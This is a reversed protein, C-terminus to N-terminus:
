RLASGRDVSARRAAEASVEELWRALFADLDFFWSSLVAAVASETEIQEEVALRTAAGEAALTAVFRGRFGAGVFTLRVTDADADAVPAFRTERGGADWESFSGDPHRQVRKVESRWRPQGDVDAIVARVVGLPVPLVRAAQASRQRPARVAVLAALAVFVVVVVVIIIVLTGKM